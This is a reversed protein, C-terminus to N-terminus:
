QAQLGIDKVLKGFKDYESKLFKAFYDPTETTIILGATSLKAAVDPQQMARNIEENLRRVIDRPTGAPAVYGFWGRMDYGPVADALLPLEPKGPVKTPNTV